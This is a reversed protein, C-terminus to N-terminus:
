DVSPVTASVRTPLGRAGPPARFASGSLERRMCTAAEDHRPDAASGIITPVVIYGEADVNFEVRIADPPLMEGDPGRCRQVLSWYLQARAAKEIAPSSMDRQSLPAGVEVRPRPAPEPPGQSASPAPVGTSTGIKAATAGDGPAPAAGRAAALLEALAEPEAASVAPAGAPPHHASPEGPPAAVDGTSPPHSGADDTPAADPRACAALLPLLAVLVTRVRLPDIPHAGRAVAGAGHSPTSPGARGREPIV